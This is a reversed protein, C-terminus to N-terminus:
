PLRRVTLPVGVAAVKCMAGRVSGIGGQAVEQGIAHGQLQQDHALADADLLGYATEGRPHTSSQTSFSATLMLYATPRPSNATEGRLHTSSQHVPACIM